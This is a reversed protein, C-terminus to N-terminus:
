YMMAADEVMSVLGDFDEYPGLVEALNLVIDLDVGNDDALGELYEERSSYGRDIYADQQQKIIEIDTM